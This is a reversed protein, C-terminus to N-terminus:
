STLFKLIIQFESVLEDRDQRKAFWDVVYTCIYTLVNIPVYKVLYAHVDNDNGYFISYNM